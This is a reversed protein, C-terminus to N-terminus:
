GQPLLSHVLLPRLGGEDPGGCHGASCAALPPASPLLEPPPRAGRLVRTGAHLGEAPGAPAGSKGPRHDALTFQGNLDALNEETAKSDDRRRRRPLPLPLSACQAPPQQARTVASAAQEDAFWCCTLMSSLLGRRPMNNSHIFFAKLM